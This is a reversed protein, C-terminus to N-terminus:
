INLLWNRIAKNLFYLAQRMLSIPKKTKLWFVLVGFCWFVLVGFCWIVLDGFCWFVL